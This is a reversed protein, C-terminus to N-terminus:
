PLETVTTRFRKGDKEFEKEAVVKGESVSADLATADFGQTKALMKLIQVRQQSLRPSKMARRLEEKFADLPTEGFYVALAARMSPNGFQRNVTVRVTADNKCAFGAAKVAAIKDHDLEIYKLLMERQRASLRIWERTITLEDISLFKNPV